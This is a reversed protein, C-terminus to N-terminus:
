CLYANLFSFTRDFTVGSFNSNSQLPPPTFYSTSSSTQKNPIVSFSAECKRRNLPLCWRELRVLAEQTTKVVSWLPLPGSPWISLIYLVASPLLYLRLSMISLSFIVAGLVSCRSPNTSCKSSKTLGLM